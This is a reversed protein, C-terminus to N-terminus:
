VINGQGQGKNKKRENPNAKATAVKCDQVKQHLVQRGTEKWQKWAMQIQKLNCTKTNGPVRPMEQIARLILEQPKPDHGISPGYKKAVWNPVFTTPVPARKIAVNEQFGM